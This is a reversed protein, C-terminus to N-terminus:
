DLSVKTEKQQSRARRQSVRQAQARLESARQGDGQSDCLDAWAEYLPAHQYSDPVAAGREFLGHATDHDGLKWEMLGLQMWLAAYRCRLHLLTASWTVLARSLAGIHYSM